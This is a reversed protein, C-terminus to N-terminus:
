DPGWPTGRAHTRDSIEFPPLVSYADYVRDVIWQQDPPLEAEIVNGDSDTAPVDIDHTGKKRFKHYVEAPVPGHQWAEVPTSILNGLGHGLSWGHALYVLKVLHLISLPKGHENAKKIFYNAIAIPDHGRSRPDTKNETENGTLDM